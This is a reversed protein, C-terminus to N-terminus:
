EERGEIQTNYNCTYRYVRAGGVQLDPEISFQWRGETIAIFKITGDTTIAAQSNAPGFLTQVEAGIEKALDGNAAFIAIDFNCDAWWVSEYCWHKPCGNDIIVIYPLADKETAEDVWVTRELEAAIYDALAGYVNNKAAM